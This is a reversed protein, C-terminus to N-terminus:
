EEAHVSIEMDKPHCLADKSIFNCCVMTSCDQNDCVKNLLCERVNEDYEGVLSIEPQISIHQIGAKKMLQKIQHFSNLFHSSTVVYHLTIVVTNDTLHWMHLEHVNLVGPVIKKIQEMFDEARIDNPLTQLMIHSTRYLLPLNTIIILSIICITILPDAYHCWHGEGFISLLGSLILGFSSLNNGIVHVCLLYLDVHGQKTQVQYAILKEESLKVEQSHKSTCSLSNYGCDKDDEYCKLKKDKRRQKNLAVILMMLCLLNVSLGVGGMIVIISPQKLEATTILRKATHSIISISLALIFTSNAFGGLVYSRGYGYTNKENRNRAISMVIICVLLSAGDSLVRYSDIELALSNTLVSFYKEVIFYIFHLTSIFIISYQDRKFSM